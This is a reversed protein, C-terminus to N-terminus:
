CFPMQHPSGTISIMIKSVCSSLFFLHCSHRQFVPFFHDSIWLDLAHAPILHSSQLTLPQYLLYLINILMYLKVPLFHIFHAYLGPIDFPDLIDSLERKCGLFIQSIMIRESQKRNRLLLDYSYLSSGSCGSLQGQGRICLLIYFHPTLTHGSAKCHCSKCGSVPDMDAIAVSQKGSTQAKVKACLRQPRHCYRHGCSICFPLQHTHFVKASCGKCTSRRICYIQCLRCLFCPNHVAQLQLCADVAGLGPRILHSLLNFTDKMNIGKINVSKTLDGPRAHCHVTDM